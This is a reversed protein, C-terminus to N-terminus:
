LGPFVRLNTPPNPRTNPQGAGFEYAGIDPRSGNFPLAIGQGNTWTLSTNLTLTNGTIATIRATGSTGQLQITDGPVLNGLGAFFYGADTVSLATGSGSSTATTLWAGADICPSNTRLSLDPLNPTTATYPTTVDTFQPSAASDLWNSRFIQDSANVQYYWFTSPHKTFINNVV